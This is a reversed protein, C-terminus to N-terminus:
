HLQKNARQWLGASALNALSHAFAPVLLNHTLLYAGGYAWGVVVAWSAFALNRDGGRHLIGFILGVFIVAKWDAGLAPLLAGRFLLEESFGPLFTVWLLDSTSLTQLVMKNSRDSATRYDPWVSVLALRACTVAAVLAALIAAHSPAVENTLLSRVAISDLLPVHDAIPQAALRLGAGGASVILTTRLCAELITQRSFSAQPQSGEAPLPKHESPLVPTDTENSSGQSVDGAGGFGRKQRAGSGKKAAKSKASIEVYRHRKKRSLAFYNVGTAYFRNVIM